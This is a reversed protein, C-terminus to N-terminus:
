RRQCDVGFRHGARQAYSVDHAVVEFEVLMSGQGAPNGLRDDPAPLFGSRYLPKAGVATDLDPLAVEVGVAVLVRRQHSQDPM